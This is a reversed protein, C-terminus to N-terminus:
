AILNEGSGRRPVNALRLGLYSLEDSAASDAASHEVSPAADAVCGQLQGRLAVVHDTDVQGWRCDRRCLLGGVLLAQIVGREHLAVDGLQAAVVPLEVCNQV